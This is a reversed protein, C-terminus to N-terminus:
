MEELDLSGTEETSIVLFYNIATQTDKKASFILDNKYNYLAQDYNQTQLVISRIKEILNYDEPKILNADTMNQIKNKQILNSTKNLQPNLSNVQNMWVYVPQWKLEDNKKVTKDSTMIKNQYDGSLQTVVSFETEYVKILENMDNLANSISNNIEKLSDMEIEDPKETEVNDYIQFLEQELKLIEEDDLEEVPESNDEEMVSKIALLNLVNITEDTENFIIIKSTPGLKYDKLKSENLWTVNQKKTATDSEEGESEEGEEKNRFTFIPIGEIEEMDRFREASTKRIEKVVSKPVIDSKFDDIDNMLFNSVNEILFQTYNVENETFNFTSVEKGKIQDLKLRQEFRQRDNPEIRISSNKNLNDVFVGLITENGKPYKFVKALNLDLLEMKHNVCEIKPKLLDIYKEEMLSVKSSLGLDQNIFVSSRKGNIILQHSLKMITNDEIVLDEKNYPLLPKLMKMFDKLNTGRLHIMNSRMYSETVSFIGENKYVSLYTKETKKFLDIIYNELENSGNLSGNISLGVDTKFFVFGDKFRESVRSKDFDNTLFILEKDKISIEDEFCLTMYYYIENESIQLHSSVIISRSKRKSYLSPPKINNHKLNKIMSPKFYLIRNPNIKTTINYLYNNRFLNDLYRLESPTFNNKLKNFCDKLCKILNVINYKCDLQIYNIPEAIDKLRTLLLLSRYCSDLDLFISKIFNIVSNSDIDQIIESELSLNVYNSTTFHAWGHQMWYNIVAKPSQLNITAVLTSSESTNRMVQELVNEPKTSAKLMEVETKVAMPDDMHIILSEDLYCAILDNSDTKFVSALKHITTVNSVKNKITTSVSYGIYQYDGKIMHISDRLEKQSTNLELKVIEDTIDSLLLEVYNTHSLFMKNGKTMKTELELIEKAYIGLRHEYDSNSNLVNKIRLIKLRLKNRNHKPNNIVAKNIVSEIEERCKEYTEKQCLPNALRCQKSLLLTSLVNNQSFNTSSYQPLNILWQFQKKKIDDPLYKWLTKSSLQYRYKNIVESIQEFPLSIMLRALDKMKQFKHDRFSSNPMIYSNPNENEFNKLKTIHCLNNMIKRVMPRVDPNKCEAVYDIIFEMSTYLGIIINPCLKIGYAQKPLNSILDAILDHRVGARSFMTATHYLNMIAIISTTKKIVTLELPVGMTVGEKIISELNLMSQPQSPLVPPAVLMFKLYNYRYSNLVFYKSLIECQLTLATKQPNINSNTLFHVLWSHTLYNFIDSKRM